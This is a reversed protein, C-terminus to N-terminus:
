TEKPNEVIPQNAREEEHRKKRRELEEHAHQERKKIKDEQENIHKKYRAEKEAPPPAKEGKKPPTQAQAQKEEAERDLREEEEEPILNNPGHFLSTKGDRWAFRKTRRYMYEYPIYEPEPAEEKTALIFASLGLALPVLAYSITRWKKANTKPIDYIDCKDHIYYGGPPGPDQPQVPKPQGCKKGKKGKPAAKKNCGGPKKVVASAIEASNQSEMPPQINQTSTSPNSTVTPSSIAELEVSKKSENPSHTNSRSKSTQATQAGLADTLSLAAEPQEAAKSYLKYVNYRIRPFVPMLFTKIRLM